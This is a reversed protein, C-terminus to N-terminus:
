AGERGNGVGKVGERAARQGAVVTAGDDYFASQRVRGISRM